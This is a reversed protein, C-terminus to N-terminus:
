LVLCRRGEPNIELAKDLCEIAEADKELMYLSCGKSFVLCRRGRSQNRYGKDLCNIAEEDKALYYLTVGKLIGPMEMKLILNWQKLLVM